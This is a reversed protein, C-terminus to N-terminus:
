DVPYDYRVCPRVFLTSARVAEPALAYMACVARRYSALQAAYGAACAPVGAADVANSKYDIVEAGVVSGEALYLM